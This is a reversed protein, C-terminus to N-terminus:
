PIRSMPHRDHYDPQHFRPIDPPQRRLPKRRGAKEYAHILRTYLPASALGASEADKQVTSDTFHCGSIDATDQNRLQAITSTLERLKPQTDFRDTAERIFRPAHQALHILWARRMAEPQIRGHKREFYLLAGETTEPHPPWTKQDNM